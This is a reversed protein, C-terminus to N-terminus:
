PDVPRRSLRDAQLANANRTAMQARYWCWTNGGTRKAEYLALDASKYLRDHTTGHDPYVAVGISPSTGVSAGNVVVEAAFSEVIRRCVREIDSAAPNQTLLVAFEDGGLRAVCDSKRVAAQVRLAAEILLADGADHGLTDNIQKLRDLDILLLAFRGGELGALVLLERFEEMFMRRNPLATLTDCYAIKELQRQSERLEATREIVQRELERRTRRLYVTRGQVIAALLAFLWFGALLRFVITQYWAPLVRIPVTLVRETWVGDRNSGRLHLSYEGPPLNTYAALRRNPETEIWDTDFGELKYAYRNREPASYDLASFEVAISNANPTITLTSSGSNFNSAPVPKGGIRVDTVVIPPHYSWLSLREPRVVTLGGSGGFLLEGAATVAGAGVWYNSIPVGEARRLMRVGFTSPDIVAIGDDTSAWIRGGEDELLKNVNENVLGQRVGLRHFRPRGRPDRMELISIGGGLSGVWLRGQRDTLLTSVYGAALAAPDQPDPLIREVAHSALEFRNLGHKTGVWLAGAPERQIVTVREDTLGDVAKRLSPANAPGASLDLGWLGDFGGVWLMGQELLLTWVPGSPDRQGVRVRVAHRALRDARYLGQETGVYVDGSDALAFANVYDNPLATEPKDPDPRLGGVRVGAPDLVDIGHHDLGLWVLGGPMALISDVDGDSVGNQRSSAGFLTYVAAQRPDLRSIARDTCIWILGSRDKFLTQITDDALSSPLTPDHHIRRTRFTDADVAVIGHGLTGLWIEGPRVEEIAHVGEDQLTSKVADSELVPRATREGPEVIYAGHRFTGIWIRGKGDQYFTWASVVKGDAAPLPVGVFRSSGESRRVLGAPTGVWLAGERDRFLARIRNDPLSAPDNDDHRLHSIAGSEVHLHDLGGDTAVWVGGSGDDVIGRVSVHSLGGPGAPYTVFRDRDRDFRALGGSSTGAWLRGQADTHLTKIFNDALAGPASPDSRYSRFHYGDWRSLGNQTGVWLFGEGDQALATPVTSNPLENDRALHQFATDALATWREADAAPCSPFWASLLTGIAFLRGLLKNHACM